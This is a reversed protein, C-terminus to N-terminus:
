AGPSDSVQPVRETLPKVGDFSSNLPLSQRLRLNSVPPQAYPVGYFVEQDFMPLSLGSYTGNKVTATIATGRKAPAAAAFPSSAFGLAVLAVAVQVTLM